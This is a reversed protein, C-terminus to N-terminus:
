SGDVEVHKIPCLGYTQVEAGQHQMIGSCKTLHNNMIRLMDSTKLSYAKAQNGGGQTTQYNHSICILLPLYVVVNKLM